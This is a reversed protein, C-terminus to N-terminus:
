IENKMEQYHKLLEYSLLFFILIKYVVPYNTVSQFSTSVVHLLPQFRCILGYFTESTELQKVLPPGLHSHIIAENQCYSWGLLWSIPACHCCPCWTWTQVISIWRGWREMLHNLLVVPLLSTPWWTCNRNVPCKDLPTSLFVFFCVVFPM